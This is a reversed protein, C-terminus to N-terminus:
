EPDVPNLLLLHSTPRNRKRKCTARAQICGVSRYTHWQPFKNLTTRGITTHQRWAHPAHHANVGGVLWCHVSLLRWHGLSLYQPLLKLCLQYTLDTSKSNSLGVTCCAWAIKKAIVELWFAGARKTEARSLHQRKHRNRHHLVTNAVQM